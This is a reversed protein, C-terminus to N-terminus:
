RAGQMALPLLAEPAWAIAMAGAVYYARADLGLWTLRPKGTSFSEVVAALLIGAADPYWSRGGHVQPHKVLAEMTRMFVGHCVRDSITAPPGLRHWKVVPKGGPSDGPDVLLYGVPRVRGDPRPMDKPDHEFPGGRMRYLTTWEPIQPQDSV